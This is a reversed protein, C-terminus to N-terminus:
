HNQYKQILDSLRGELEAQFRKSNQMREEIETLIAGINDVVNVSLRELRDRPLTGNRATQADRGVNLSENLIAQIRKAQVAVAQRRERAEQMREESEAGKYGTHIGALAQRGRAMQRAEEAERMAEEVWTIRTQLEKGEETIQAYYSQRQALEALEKRISKLALTDADSLLPELAQIRASLERVHAEYDREVRKLDRLEFEIRKIRANVRELEGLTKEYQQKAEAAEDEEKMLREEKKGIVSYFVSKLTNGELAEVDSQEYELHLKERRLRAHLENATQNLSELEAELATRGALAEQLEHLNLFSDEAM